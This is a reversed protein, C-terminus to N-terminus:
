CRIGGGEGELTYPNARKEELKLQKINSRPVSGRELSLTFILASLDVFTHFEKKVSCM